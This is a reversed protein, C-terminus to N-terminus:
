TIATSVSCAPAQDLSLFICEITDTGDACGFMTKGVGKKAVLNATLGNIAAQRIITQGVSPNPDSFGAYTM